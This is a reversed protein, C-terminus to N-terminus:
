DQQTAFGQTDRGLSRLALVWPRLDDVERFREPDRSGSLEAPVASRVCYVLESVKAVAIELPFQEVRTGTTTVIFTHRPLDSIEMPTIPNPEASIM